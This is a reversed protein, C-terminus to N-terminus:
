FKFKLQTPALRLPQPPEVSGGPPTRLGQAELRQIIKDQREALTLNRTARDMLVRESIGNELAAIRIADLVLFKRGLLDDLDFLADEIKEHIDM